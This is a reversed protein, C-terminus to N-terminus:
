SGMSYSNEPGQSRKGIAYYSITSFQTVEVKASPLAALFGAKCAKGLICLRIRSGQNNKICINSPKSIQTHLM